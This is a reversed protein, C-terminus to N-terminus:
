GTAASPPAGQSGPPTSAEEDPRFRALWPPAPEAVKTLGRWQDVRALRRGLGTAADPLLADVARALAGADRNRFAGEAYLRAARRRRGARRHGLAVWRWFLARDPRTGFTRAAAGHKEELLALEPFPEVPDTLLMSADHITYAVLTEPARAAPGSLALRIWLDWDALQLFREDFGGLTRVLETRAGVNSCGSWIVNWRLLERTIAAPHPQAVSFLFRRDGDVGAGGVYGWEAGADDAADLQRRLKLPAWLDDDDLFSIWEGRAAALGANRARAVGLSREHRIVRLRPEGLEELRETTGDSSGDDVVIVEHEVGDQELASPLAATSLLPWRNRTPIVVTAELGDAM